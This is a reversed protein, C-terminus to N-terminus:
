FVWVRRLIARAEDCGAGGCDIWLSFRAAAQSEPDRSMVTRVYRRRGPGLACTFIPSESGGITDPRTSPADTCGAALAEPGPAWRSLELGGEFGAGDFLWQHGDDGSLMRPTVGAPLWLTVIGGELVAPRLAALPEDPPVVCRHDVCALRTPTRACPVSNRTTVGCAALPTRRARDFAGLDARDGRLLSCVPGDGTWTPAREIACDATTSCAAAADTAERLRDRAVACTPGADVTPRASSSPPASAVSPPGARDRCGLLTALALALASRLPATRPHWHSAPM